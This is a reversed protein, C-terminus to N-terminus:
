FRAPLVDTSKLWVIAARLATDEGSRLDSLRRPAWLHPAIGLQPSPIGGSHLPFTQSVNLRLGDPLDLPPDLRLCRQHSHWVPAGGGRGYRFRFARLREHM